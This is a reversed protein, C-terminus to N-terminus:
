DVIVWDESLMDTQSALWGMLIAERGTSDVTKMTIAPLVLAKGGNQRAFEANHPSWFNEASVERSGDCSLSLWMGKGNWGARAVRKGSKLAAIADGFTLGSKEERM